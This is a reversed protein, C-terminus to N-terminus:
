LLIFFIIFFTTKSIEINVKIFQLLDSSLELEFEVLL